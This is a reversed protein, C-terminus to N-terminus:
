TFIVWISLWTIMCGICGSLQARFTTAPISNLPIISRFHRYLSYHPIRETRSIRSYRRRSLTSHPVLLKSNVVHRGAFRITSTNAFVKSAITLALTNRSRLELQAVGSYQNGPTIEVRWGKEYAARWKLHKIGQLEQVDEGDDSYGIRLPLKLVSMKM